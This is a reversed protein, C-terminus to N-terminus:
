WINLNQVSMWSQVQNRAFALKVCIDSAQIKRIEKWQCNKGHFNKGEFYFM